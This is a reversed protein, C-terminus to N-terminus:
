HKITQIIAVLVVIVIIAVVWKTWASKSQSLDEIGVKQQATHHNDELEAHQTLPKKTASSFTINSQQSSFLVKENPDHQEPTPLLNQIVQMDQDIAQMFDQKTAYHKGRGFSQMAESWRPHFEDIETKEGHEDILFVQNTGHDLRISTTSSHQQSQNRTYRNQYFELAQQPDEMFSEVWDKSEKLGFHSHDMILKVAEVKRNQRLLEQMQEMIHPDLSNM